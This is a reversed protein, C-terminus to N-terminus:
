DDAGVLWAKADGLEDDDFVRIAGPMLWGFAKVANELWDADTVVAVREWSTLNGAWVKTDAWMAGPSYHTGDPVVYLLRVVGREAAAEIAPALVDRYDEETVRGSAEFGLTGEPMDDIVTIM